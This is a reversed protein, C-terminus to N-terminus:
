LWVNQPLTTRLQECRGEIELELKGIMRILVRVAPRRLPQRTARLIGGDGEPSLELFLEVYDADSHAVEKNRVDILADHFQREASTLVRLVSGPVAKEAVSSGRSSVFPRAYAVVVATNLALVLGSAPKMRPLGIKTALLNSAIDKAEELDLKALWLRRYLRLNPELGPAVPVRQLSTRAVSLGLTPSSRRVPLARAAPM